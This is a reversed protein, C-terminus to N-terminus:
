QLTLYLDVYFSQFVPLKLWTSQFSLIVANKHIFLAVLFIPFHTEATRTLFVILRVPVFSSLESFTM